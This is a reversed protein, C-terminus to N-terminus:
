TKQNANEKATVISKGVINCLQTAEDELDVMKQAPLLEAKIIFRIWVRSERLEKLVISMKHIFDIAVQGIFRNMMETNVYPLILTTMRGLVPSVAAYVYSYEQIVQRPAIPRIPHPAWCRRTDSIRGFRAEDAALLIM